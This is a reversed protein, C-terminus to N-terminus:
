QYRVSKKIYDNFELERVGNIETRVRELRSKNEQLTEYLATDEILSESHISKIKKSKRIKFQPLPLEHFYNIGQHM